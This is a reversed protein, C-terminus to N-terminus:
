KKGSVAGQAPIALPPVPIKEPTAQLKKAIADEPTNAQHLASIRGNQFLRTKHFDLNKADQV